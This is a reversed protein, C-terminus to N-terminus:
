RFLIPLPITYPRGSRDAMSLRGILADALMTEIEDLTMEQM